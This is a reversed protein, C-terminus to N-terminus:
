GSRLKPNNWECKDDFENYLEDLRIALEWAPMNKYCKPNNKGDYESSKRDLESQMTKVFKKNVKAKM